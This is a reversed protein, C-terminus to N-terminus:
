CRVPRPMVDTIVMLSRREAALLCVSQMIWAFAKESVRLNIRRREIIQQMCCAFRRVLCRMCREGRRADPIRVGDALRSTRTGLSSCRPAYIPCPSVPQPPQYRTPM